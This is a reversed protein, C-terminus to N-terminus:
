RTQSYFLFSGGRCKEPWFLLQRMIIGNMSSAANKQGKKRGTRLLLNTGCHTFYDYVYLLVSSPM